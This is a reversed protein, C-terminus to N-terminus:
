EPRLARVVRGRLEGVRSVLLCGVALAAATAGVAGVKVARPVRRSAHLLAIGAAAAAVPAAERVLQAGGPPQMLPAVDAAFTLSGSDFGEVARRVGRMHGAGVVAVYRQPAAGAGRRALAWLAHALILDREATLAPPLDDADLAADPAALLADAAERLAAGFRARAAPAVQGGEVADALLANHEATLAALRPAAARLRAGAPSAAADAHMRRLAAAARPWDRLLLSAAWAAADARPPAWAFPTELGSLAAPARAALAAAGAQAGARAATVAFPRDGLRVAAGVAAAASAGARQDCGYEEPRLRAAASSLSVASTLLLSLLFGSPPQAFRPPPAEGDVLRLAAFAGAGLLARAREGDLELLVGAAAPTAGGGVVESAAFAGSAPSLHSTGVVVLEDGSRLRVRLASAM